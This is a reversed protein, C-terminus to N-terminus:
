RVDGAWEPQVPADVALPTGDSAPTTERPRIAAPLAGIPPYLLDAECVPSVIEFPAVDIARMARPHGLYGMTLVARLATFALRRLFLRSESWGVLVARRQEPTLSSFRRFGSLGPAPFFLTAQEFLLFMARVQFRLGRPLVSLFSDAYGPLEAELGSLPIASGAPFIAEAAADLFAAERAALLHYTGRPRPYGFLLRRLAWTGFVVLLALTM